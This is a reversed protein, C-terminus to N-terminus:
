NNNEEESFPEITPFKKFLLFNMGNNYYLRLEQQRYFYSEVIPLSELYYNGDDVEKIKTSALNAVNFKRDKLSYTYSGWIRNTSSVGTFTTDTDFNLLYSDDNKPLAEKIIGTLENGFGILQWKTYEFRKIFESESPQSCGNISLLGVVIFLLFVVSSNFKKGNFDNKRYM